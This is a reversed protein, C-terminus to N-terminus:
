DSKSADGPCTLESEAHCVILRHNLVASVSAAVVDAVAVDAECRMLHSVLWHRIIFFLRCALSNVPTQRLPFQVKGM